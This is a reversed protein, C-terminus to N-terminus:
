VVSSPPAGSATPGGDAGPHLDAQLAQIEQEVKLLELRQKAEELPSAEVEETLYHQAAARARAEGRFIAPLGMMGVYVALVAPEPSSRLAEHIALAAGILFTSIDRVLHVWRKPRRVIM